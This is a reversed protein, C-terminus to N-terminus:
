ASACSGMAEVLGQVVACAQLNREAGRLHHLFSIREFYLPPLARNRDRYHLLLKGLQGMLLTFEADDSTTTKLAQHVFEVWSLVDPCGEIRRTYDVWLAFWTNKNGLHDLLEEIEDRPSTAVASEGIEPIETQAAIFLLQTMAALIRGNLAELAQTRQPNGLGEIRNLEERFQEPLDQGRMEYFRIFLTTRGFALAYDVHDPPVTARVYARWDKPDSFDTPLKLQTKDAM